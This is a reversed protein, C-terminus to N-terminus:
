YFNCFQSCFCRLCHSLSTGILWMCCVSMMSAVLFGIVGKLYHFFMSVRQLWKSLSYLYQFCRFYRKLFELYVQIDFLIGTQVIPLHRNPENIPFSTASVMSFNGISYVLQFGILVHLLFDFFPNYICQIPSFKYIKLFWFVERLSSIPHNLIDM